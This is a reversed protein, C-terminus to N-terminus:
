STRQHGSVSFKLHQMLKTHADAAAKLQDAMTACCSAIPGGEPNHKACEAEVMGCAKVANAEHTKIQAVLDFAVKDNQISPELKVLEKNVADVNRRVEAAHEKATEPSIGGPVSSYYQLAQAHSIANSQYAHATHPRYADRGLIKADARTSFGQAFVTTASMAVLAVAAIFTKM